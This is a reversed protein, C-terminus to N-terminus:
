NIKTTTKPRCQTDFAPALQSSFDTQDTPFRTPRSFRFKQQFTRKTSYLFVTICEHNNYLHFVTQVIVM